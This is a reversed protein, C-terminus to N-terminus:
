EEDKGALLKRVQNVNLAGRPMPVAAIAALLQKSWAARSTLLEIAQPKLEAEMRPYADLVLRAKAAFAHGAQTARVGRGYPELLPVTLEAQLQRLRLSVTPQTINLRAAARHLSGLEVVWYFAEIQPITIRSM